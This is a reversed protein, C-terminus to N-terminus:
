ASAAMSPTPRSTLCAIDAYAAADLRLYTALRDDLMFLPDAIKGPDFGETALRSKQPRFTQTTELDTVIRLFLPLAYAPLRSALHARLGALEFGAGVVVAAMGARGDAGALKVGYVCASDVGPYAAIAGEVETTAVNEGKWRFTDGIRDVFRFFGREDQRMLDGSRVWADGAAFVGRLVKRRTEEEGTYGEFRGAGHAGSGDIRAIAEGAVGPACRICFGAGDRAPEGRDPDFEVIALPFRHALFAPVRGLAGPEGELNYLSFAGETAAYFELIRPVAFREQFARWVEASLGNGCALRLRHRREDAGPPAKLLYRCLEGIYQFVTCDYRVIDSWFRAASFRERIVVSGGGVLIAGPAVVGGVSHHMPLCNYLRDDAGCDMLRAFWHSWMMVRHHSVRAAKPLGTTGSTYILLALDSLSTERREAATLPEGGVAELIEEIRHRSPGARGCVWVEAGAEISALAGAAGDLLDEAILIHTPRALDLCHALSAGRLSTNILAVVGGVSTIGLWIALYEPRNPMLLAVVEGRALGQGLAWRGWRCARESLARYTLSEGEAILAPAEGTLTAREAIVCALTRLPAADVVAAMKLARLWGKAASEGTAPPLTRRQTAQLEM